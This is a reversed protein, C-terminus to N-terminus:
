EYIGLAIQLKKYTDIESNHKNALKLIESKTMVFDYFWLNYQQINYKLFGDLLVQIPTLSEVGTITKLRTTIEILFERTFSDTILDVVSQGKQAQLQQMLNTNQETLINNQETLQSLQEQVQQYDANNQEANQQLKANQEEVQAQLRKIETALQENQEQLTANIRQQENRQELLDSNSEVPHEYPELIALLNSESCDPKGELQQHPFLSVFHNYTDNSVNFTLPKRNTTAM